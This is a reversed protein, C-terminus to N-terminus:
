KEIQNLSQILNKIDNLTNLDKNKTAIEKAIILKNLAQETNDNKAHIEASFIHTFSNNKLDSSRM